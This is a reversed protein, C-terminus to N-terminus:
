LAMTTKAGAGVDTVGVHVTYRGNADLRIEANSRGLGSRFAVFAVGVGRKLPGGDAAPPRRKKKWEFVDAGRQVCEDLTYNTYPTEDHFMRTMNKLIFDVPDMKMRFAVDDMM